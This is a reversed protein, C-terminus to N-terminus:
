RDAHGGEADEVGSVGGRGCGGAVGRARADSRRGGGRRGDGRRRRRAVVGVGRGDLAHAPAVRVGEGLDDAPVVPRAEPVRLPQEAVAGVGLVRHLLREDAGVVREPAVPRRQVPRDRGVTPLDAPAAHRPRTAHVAERLPAAPPCGSFRRVRAATM